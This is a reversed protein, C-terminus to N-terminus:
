WRCVLGTETLATKFQDIIQQRESPSSGPPILDDDHFTISYAGLEALKHVADVGALAPRAADGFVDRAQWGVTWLGFSFKDERTPTPTM